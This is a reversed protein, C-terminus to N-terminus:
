TRMAWALVALGALLVPQHLMYYSLSWRGLFALPNFRNTAKAAHNRSRELWWQTAAMGWWMVGMWPVLPVYDETVPLQSVLGLWNLWRGNLVHVFTGAVGADLAYAAIYKMAICLLGLPWLLRGWGATLRAILLMVAMGHLVGFYIFSGPFMLISGLSVLAACGAIQLWRRGFHQWSQGNHLALVQGAGACLLFLSLIGTRQWTWVPNAYFDQQIYRAQNLDFCFHYATMWLMAFGRATDVTDLRTTANNIAQKGVTTRKTRHTFTAYLCIFNSRLGFTAALM